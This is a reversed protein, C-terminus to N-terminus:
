RIKKLGKQTEKGFFSMGGNQRNINSNLKSCYFFIGNSKVQTPTLTHTVSHTHTHLHTHTYTHPTHTHM